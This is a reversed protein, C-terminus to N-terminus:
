FEMPHCDAAVTLPAETLSQIEDASIGPATERLILGDPTVDILALDTMITTVCRGGTLPYSCENLIKPGGDRTTHETMVILSRGGAILDMAGGMGGRVMYPAWWNALDGHRSVQFAGLIVVDVYGGRAMTFAALSDFFAAGPFLTVPQGGANYVTADAQDAEPFPGYGLLGNESHFSIGMRSDVCNSVLTPLGLGLNVVQGRKLLKAVRMAMMEHSLRPGIAETAAHGLTPGRTSSPRRLGALEEATARTLVIRDVFLSPVIVDEPAIAGVPVIEDVEAITIRAAAAMTPHFNRTGGVYGLNGLEDARSAKILAFDPKLATELIYERGEFWRREKGEAILTDVGVPSYFAPIGAAGARLRETMIGQPTAEFEMKGEAILRDSASGSAYASSGFAGIFKSVQENEALGQYNFGNSILTLNRAGQEALARLLSAPRNQPPGFGGVCLSAGDPIDAVADRPSDYIKGNEPM